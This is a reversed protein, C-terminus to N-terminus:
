KTPEYVTGAFWVEGSSKDRIIFMYPKDFTIDINIVPIEFLYDFGGSTGGAGGAATAAAAKIGDNTFEINAKHIAKDIYSNSSTMNSLDAKKADFVDTIGITKLDELLALEYDFNFFPISGRIRTAYGEKFNDIKVEQLGKITKNVDSAKLNKVYNTLKEEKPMIGVYQLTTGNYTKLDKAFSKVNDDEYIYFDTNAISKNYNSKIEEIYKDLYKEVDKEVSNSNHELMLQGDESQLWKEYEPRVIERIKDEGIEKIIDYRNFDALVDGGKVGESGNFTRKEKYTKENYGKNHDYYFQEETNYVYSTDSYSKEEGKIKEHDYQIHYNTVLCPVNSGTACHIQNNWEMDIALANVLFYDNQSADDVLDEILNFTKGKVWDNIANPTEFSDYLVEANYKTKLKSVYEKKISEKYADKIFMANALSMNDSNEYKKTSYKGIVDTIQKKTNGNAGEKLM